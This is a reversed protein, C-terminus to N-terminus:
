GHTAIVEKGFVSEAQDKLWPQAPPAQLTVNSIGLPTIGEASPGPHIFTLMIMVDYCQGVNSSLYM